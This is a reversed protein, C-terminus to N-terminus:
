ESSVLKLGIVSAIILALFFLRGFTAPDKFVLIGVIATGVAGLGTWVAYATGLPITQLARTLLWFSLGSTVLFALSPALRTFGESFKLSTTFGVEFLGALILYAWAM